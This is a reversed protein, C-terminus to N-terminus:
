LREIITANALGGAECMTQLGYRGGTQELVSLLTTMIRAGSAGLPHGLATAGGNINVKAPDAGTEALWALVVSAFAENVEFADIDALGLAARRLVMETAPIFATLMLQPDDGLVAFSHLRVRPRLGLRRARYSSTILVAAAGDSIQSANGATVHWGIEPFRREWAESRFAPKLGGLTELSTGPRVPEDSLAEVLVGDAGQARVPVVEADFRGDRWARAARHHSAVAFEDLQSRSLGWKAAVLEASIGQPVLGGPYRAAVGPGVPDAGAANSFMPVRSMSEVGSAIVVDYAGSMVGQAAFHIAQQSSGCQRDVTVAPVSEPLGAALAAWRATNGSQEGVQSVAGSIVDSVAATDIGTRELLSRIAHAHLDVPHLGALVGSPKGKGTPTRVADIIVADNM